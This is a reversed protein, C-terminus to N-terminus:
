KKNGKGTHAIPDAEGTPCLASNLKCLVDVVLNDFVDGCAALVQRWLSETCSFGATGLRLRPYSNGLRKRMRTQDRVFFIPTATVSFTPQSIVSGDESIRDEARFNGEKVMILAVIEERESRFIHCLAESHTINTGYEDSSAGL